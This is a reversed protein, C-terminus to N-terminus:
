DKLSRLLLRLEYRAGGYEGSELYCRANALRNVALGFETSDLPLAELLVRLRGFCALPMNHGSPQGLMEDLGERLFARYSETISFDANLAM